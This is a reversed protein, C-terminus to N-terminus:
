HVEFRDIAFTHAAIEVFANIRHFYGRTLMGKLYLEMVFTERKERIVLMEFYCKFEIDDAAMVIGEM